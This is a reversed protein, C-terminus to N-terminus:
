ELKHTNTYIYLGPIKIKEELRAREARATKEDKYSAISIKMKKGKEKSVIKADIGWRRKMSAIFLEAEKESYVSSGIVEYTVPQTVTNSPTGAAPAPAPTTKSPTTPAPKAAPLSDKKVSDVGTGLPQIISDKNLTDALETAEKKLFTSDPVPGTPLTNNRGTLNEFWTPNWLFLALTLSLLALIAIIIKLYGPTARPAPEEIQYNVPAKYFAQSQEAKVLAEPEQTYIPEDPLNGPNEEEIANEAIVAELTELNEAPATVKPEETIENQASEEEIAKEAPKVEEAEPFSIEEAAIAQQELDPTEVRESAALEVKENIEEATEPLGFFKFGLKLDPNAFFKLEGETAIFKGLSKLDVEADDSLKEKLNAVFQDIHYIASEESLNHQKSIYEALLTDETVEPRFALQYSPPLFSHLEADYRGPSKKKFFTGLEPVGVEKNTQIVEALYSLIDM